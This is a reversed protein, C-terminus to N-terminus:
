REGVKKFTRLVQNVAYDYDEPFDVEVCPLGTIDVATLGSKDTMADLAYEFFKMENGPVALQRVTNRFTVATESTFKAVGIFEGYCIEPDLHKGIDTIQVGDVIVKVEEERCQKRDIALYGQGQMPAMRLLIDDDFVVDANLYYFDGAYHALALNLSFLTNTEKFDENVIYTVNLRRYNKTVHTQIMEKRYGVVLIIHTVGATQLAQLQWDLITQDGMPLLCKPRDDTLPRLRVSQGAALIIAHTAQMSDLEELFNYCIISM